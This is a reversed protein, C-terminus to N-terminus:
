REPGLQTTLEAAVGPKSCLDKSPIRIGVDLPAHSLPEGLAALYGPMSGILRSALFCTKATASFGQKEETNHDEKLRCTSDRLTQAKNNKFLKRPLLASLKQKPLDCFGLGTHFSIGLKRYRVPDPNWRAFHPKVRRAPKWPRYM